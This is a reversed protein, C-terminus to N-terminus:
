MLVKCNTLKCYMWFLQRVFTQHRTGHPLFYRRNWQLRVGYSETMDRTEIVIKILNINECVNECNLYIFYM